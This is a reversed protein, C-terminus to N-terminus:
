AGSKRCVPESWLLAEGSVIITDFKCLRLLAFFWRAVPTEKQFHRRTTDITRRSFYPRTRGLARDNDTRKAIKPSVDHGIVNNWVERVISADSHNFDAGVFEHAHAGLRGEIMGMDKEIETIVALDDTRIARRQIAERGIEAGTLRARGFCHKV